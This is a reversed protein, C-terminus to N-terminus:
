DGKDVSTQSGDMFVVLYVKLLYPHCSVVLILTRPRSICHGVVINLGIRWQIFYVWWINLVLDVTLWDDWCTGLVLGSESESVGDGESM